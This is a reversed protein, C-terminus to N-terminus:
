LGRRSVIWRYAQLRQLQVLKTFYGCFFQNSLWVATFLKLNPFVSDILAVLSQDVTVREEWKCQLKCYIASCSHQLQNLNRGQNTGHPIHHHLIKSRATHWMNRNLSLLISIVLVSKLWVLTTNSMTRQRICQDTKYKALRNGLINSSGANLESRRWSYTVAYHTGSRDTYQCTTLQLCYLTLELIDHTDFLPGDSCLLYHRVNYQTPVKLAHVM